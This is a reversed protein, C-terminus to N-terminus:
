RPRKPSQSNATLQSNRLQSTPFQYLRLTHGPFGDRLNAAREAIGLVDRLRAALLLVAAVAPVLLDRDFFDDRTFERQFAIDAGVARLFVEDVVGGLFARATLEDDDVVAVIQEQRHHEVGRERPVLGRVVQVTIRFSARKGLDDDVDDGGLDDLRPAASFPM